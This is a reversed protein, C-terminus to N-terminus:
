FAATAPPRWTSRFTLTAATAPGGDGSFGEAGTGAVTTITGAPSVRRIRHNNSDAILVGGDAEVAVGMPTNLRASTGPGGDGSFGNLGGGAITTITGAPSVRRVRNANFESFAYGGDPMADVGYPLKVAAATAAGGDGISIHCETRDANCQGTQRGGGAM